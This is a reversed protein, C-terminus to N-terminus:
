DNSLKALCAIWIQGIDGIGFTKAIVFKDSDGIIVGHELLLSPIKDLATFRVKPGLNEDM